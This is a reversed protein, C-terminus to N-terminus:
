NKSFHFETSIDIVWFLFHSSALFSGSIALNMHKTPPLCHAGTCLHLYHNPDPPSPLEDVAISPLDFSHPCTCTLQLNPTSPPVKHHFDSSTRRQHSRNGWNFMSWQSLSFLPYQHHATQPFLFLHLAPHLHAFLDCLPALHHPTLTLWQAPQMQGLARALVSEQTWGQFNCLSSRPQSSSGAESSQQSKLFECEFLHPSHQTDQRMLSYRNGKSYNWELWSLGLTPSTSHSFKCCNSCYSAKLISFSSNNKEKWNVWNLCSRPM